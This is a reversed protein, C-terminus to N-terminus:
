VADDRRQVTVTPSDRAEGWTHLSRLVPELGRGARSLVYEHRPPREQYMRRQLVGADELEAPARRPDAAPRGRERPDTRLPRRM